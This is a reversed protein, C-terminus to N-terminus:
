QGALAQRVSDPPISMLVVLKEVVEAFVPAAVESGWISSSPREIWVYVVFQPDDVPGWGIFSTNTISNTYYGTPLPIQATGTKGALRYGPVLAQSSESELSNALMENMTRATTESIPTGLYRPPSNYQRGNQVMGYLVHPAVMRGDNAIASAAMVMQIPTVAVGQGFSNTGLDVPYWDGDGPVKLRGGAEGALDIGTPHGIGFARAYSYFKQPGLQSAVWALCVNLSHQMCGTMDQYGWAADDWNYVPVGGILFVGTDLFSTSPTVTGSDLAGSMTLIKFVSGPEYPLSIARNFESANNFYLEYDWYENPNFRPTSAMALIEGNEPDMVVITGAEAGHEILSRDLIDEVAAQIDRDITLILTAGDPIRPLDEARNPDTPVLTTVPIGALQEDYKAEVGFYGHGDHMVFGLINSGLSKEPYSRQFHARFILGDLSPRDTTRWDSPQNELEDKLQKLEEVKGPSVFDDVVLYLRGEPNTLTNYIENYDLELTVSLTLAVTHPNNVRTIDVGVEYVIENGALLHGNRDYIPGRAPYLTRVEWNYNNSQDLIEQAEPSNQIRLIQAPIAIGVLIFVGIILKVRWSYEFNM